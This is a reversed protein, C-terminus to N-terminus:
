DIPYRLANLRTRAADIVESATLGVPGGVSERLADGALGHLHVGALLAVGPDTGQAVLAGVIGALADGMGGTALGPNGSTNVFWRGDPAAVISGAGKVLAWADTRSALAQAAAIRDHQVDATS